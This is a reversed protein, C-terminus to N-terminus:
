THQDLGVFKDYIFYFFFTKSVRVLSRQRQTTTKTVTKRKRRTKMQLRTSRRMRWKPSQIKRQAAERLRFVFLVFLFLLHSAIIPFSIYSTRKFMVM